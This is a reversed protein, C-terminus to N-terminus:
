GGKRKKAGDESSDSQSAAQFPHTLPFLTLAIHPPRIATGVDCVIERDHQWERLVGKTGIEEESSPLLLFCRGIVFM